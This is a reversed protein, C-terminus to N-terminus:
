QYLDEPDLNQNGQYFPQVLNAPMFKDGENYPGENLHQLSQLDLIHYASYKSSRSSFLGWGNEINTYSPKEQVIGYSPTTLDIYKTLSEGATVFFFRMSYFVREEVNVNEIQSHIYYYFGTGSVYTRLNEGGNDNLARKSLQKWSLTKLKYDTSGFEREYFSIEVYIENLISNKASSFDLRQDKYFGSSIGSSQYFKVTQYSQPYQIIVDSVLKTESIIEPKGEIKVVLEFKFAELDGLENDEIIKEDAIYIVNKDNAFFGTDKPITDNYVFDITKVYNGNKYKKISVDASKYIFSDSIAAMEAVSADGLFAKNVKIYQKDTNKDLLGYIVTIDKYDANLDVDTSCSFLITVLSFIILLKKM